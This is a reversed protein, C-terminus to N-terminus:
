RREKTKKRSPRWGRTIQIDNKKRLRTPKRLKGEDMDAGLFTGHERPRDESTVYVSM